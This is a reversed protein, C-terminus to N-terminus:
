IDPVDGGIYNDIVPLKRMDAQIRPFAKMESPQTEALLKAVRYCAKAELLRERWSGLLM